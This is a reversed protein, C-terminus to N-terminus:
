NKQLSEKYKRIQNLIFYESRINDAPNKSKSQNDTDVPVYEAYKLYM